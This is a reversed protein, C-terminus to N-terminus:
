PANKYYSKNYEIMQAKIKEINAEYYEKRTRTPIQKNVCETNEIWYRERKNLEDRSNCEVIEILEIFFDGGEIIKFSTRYNTKGELHRKYDSHHQGLRRSLYPNTTSGLYVLGTKRCVIKYIKANSYIM